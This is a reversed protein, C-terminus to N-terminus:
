RRSSLDVAISPAGEKWVDLDLDQLAALADRVAPM